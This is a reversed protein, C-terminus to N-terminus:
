QLYSLIMLVGSGLVGKGGSAGNGASVGDPEVLAVNMAPVMTETQMQASEKFPIVMGAPKSACTAIAIAEM